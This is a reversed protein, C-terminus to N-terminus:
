VGLVKSSDATQIAEDGLEVSQLTINFAVIETKQCNNKLTWKCMWAHIVQCNKEATRQLDQPSSESMLITCDDAFQLGTGQINQLM